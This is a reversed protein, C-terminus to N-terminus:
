FTDLVKGEYLYGAAFRIMEDLLGASSAGWTFLSVVQERGCVLEQPSSQTHQSSQKRPGSSTTKITKEFDKKNNHQGCVKM